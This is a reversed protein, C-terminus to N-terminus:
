GSNLCNINYLICVNNPVSWYNSISSSKRYFTFFENPQKWQYAAYFTNLKKKHNSRDQTIDVNRVRQIDNTQWVLIWCCKIQLREVWICHANFFAINVAVFLRLTKKKEVVRLIVTRMSAFFPAPPHSFNNRRIALFHCSSWM